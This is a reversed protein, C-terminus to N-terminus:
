FHRSQRRAAAIFIIFIVSIVTTSLATVFTKDVSYYLGKDTCVLYTIAFSLIGQMSKGTLYTKKFKLFELSQAHVCLGGWGIIGSVAAAKIRLAASSEALSHCGNTMEIFGTILGKPIDPIFGIHKELLSTVTGFFIVYGCVASISKVSDNVSETFLTTFPKKCQKTYTACFDESGSKYFRFILGVAIATVVHVAFIIMGIKISNFMGVGVTGTIFAPGANGCFSTLRLYQAKSLQGNEYLEGAAKVGAPYGSIFGLIVASAAASPLNFIKPFPKLFRNCFDTIAGSKLLINNLVFFPFLSPIVAFLCMEVSSKAGLMPIQPSAAIFLMFLFVAIMMFM